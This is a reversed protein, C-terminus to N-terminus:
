LSQAINQYKTRTQDIMQQQADPPAYWGRKQMETFVSCQMNHEERLINLFDNRVPQHVCENSFTNYVDTMHKQSNLIDNMIEEDTLSLNM